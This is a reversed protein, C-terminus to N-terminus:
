GLLKLVIQATAAGSAPNQGTVLMGDVVARSAFMEGGNFFGGQSELTTQLLFPVYSDAQAAKEEENTFCTFYKGAILPQGDKRKAGVLCAPGHCVSAVPKDAAYFQEVLCIVNPDSPFDTMTGHGGAFFVGAYDEPKVEALRLTNALKSLAVSDTEFRAAAEARHEPKDSEADRPAAGGKPSAIHVDYGSDTFVYYPAVVEELWYGTPHPSTGMREASTVVLLLTKKPNPM